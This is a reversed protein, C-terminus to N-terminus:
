GGVAGLLVDGLSQKEYNPKKIFMQYVLTATTENSLAMANTAIKFRQEIARREAQKADLEETSVKKYEDALSSARGDLGNTIGLLGADYQNLTREIKALSRIATDIDIEAAKRASAAADPDADDKFKGYTWSPLLGIGGEKLTGSYTATSTVGNGDTTTASVTVQNSYALTYVGGTGTTLTTVGSATKLTGQLANGSGDTLPNGSGDVLTASGDAASVKLFGQTAVGSSDTLSAGRSMSLNKYLVDGGPVGTLKAGTKDPRLVSGDNQVIVYDSGMFQHTLEVSQGVAEVVKVDKAWGGQGNGNNAIVSTPNDIQRGVWTNITSVALDFAENSRKSLADKAMLLQNRIDDIRKIGTEVSSLYNTIDFKQDGIKNIQDEIRAAKKGDYKQNLAALEKEMRQAQAMKFTLTSRELSSKFVSYQSENTFWNSVAM